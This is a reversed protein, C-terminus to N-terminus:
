TPKMEENVITLSPDNNVITLSPKNNIITLLFLKQFRDKPFRGNKLVIELLFITKLFSLKTKTKKNDFEYHFSRKLFFSFSGDRTTVFKLLPLAWEKRELTSIM